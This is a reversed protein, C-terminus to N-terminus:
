LAKVPKLTVLFEGLRAQDGTQKFIQQVRHATTIEPPTPIRILGPPGEVEILFDNPNVIDGESVYWQKVTLVDEDSMTPFLRPLHVKVIQDM